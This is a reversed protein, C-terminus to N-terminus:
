APILKKIQVLLNMQTPALVYLDVAKLTSSTSALAVLRPESAVELLPTAFARNKDSQVRTSLRHKSAKSKGMPALNIVISM